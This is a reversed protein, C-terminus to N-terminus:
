IYLQKWSAQENMCFICAFDASFDLGLVRFANSFILYISNGLTQKGCLDNIRYSKCINSSTSFTIMAKCILNCKM